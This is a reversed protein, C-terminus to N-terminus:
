RPGALRHAESCFFRGESDRTTEAQPLHLGCHACARMTDAQAPPDQKGPRAPAKGGDRPLRSRSKFLWLVLGFLALLLLLKLAM